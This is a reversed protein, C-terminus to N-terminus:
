NLIQNVDAVKVIEKNKGRREIMYVNWDKIIDVIEPNKEINLTRYSVFCIQPSEESHCLMNVFQFANRLTFYDFRDTAEDLIVPLDFLKSLTLMIGLSIVAKHSGAPHTIPEGNVTEIVFNGKGIHRFVIMEEPLMMEVCKEVYEEITQAIQESMSELNTHDQIKNLISNLILVTTETISITLLHDEIIKIENQNSSIWDKIKKWGEKKASLEESRKKLLDDVNTVDEIEKDSEIKIGAAILKRKVESIFKPEIEELMNQMSKVFKRIDEATDMNVLIQNFHFTNALDNSTTQWSIQYQNLIKETERKESDLYKIEETLSPLKPKVEDLNAIASTLKERCTELDKSKNNIEKVITELDKKTLDKNKYVSPTTKVGKLFNPNELLSELPLYVESEKEKDSYVVVAEIGKPKNQPSKIAKQLSKYTASLSRIEGLSLHIKYKDVIKLASSSDDKAKKLQSFIKPIEKNFFYQFDISKHSPIEFDILAQLNNKSPLNKFSASWEKTAELSKSLALLKEKLKEVEKGEQMIKKARSIKQLREKVEPAWQKLLEIETEKSPIKSLEEDALKRHAELNQFTEGLSFIKPIEKEDRMAEEKFENKLNYFRTEHREKEQLLVNQLKEFNNVLKETGKNLNSIQKSIIEPVTVLKDNIAEIFNSINSPSILIDIIDSYIGLEVFKEKLQSANTAVQNWPLNKVANEDNGVVAYETAEYLIVKQTVKRSSRKFLYELKYLKNKHEFYFTGSGDKSQNLLMEDINLRKKETYTKGAKGSVFCYRMLNIVNTKGALNKGYFLTATNPFNISGHLGLVNNIETLLFKM